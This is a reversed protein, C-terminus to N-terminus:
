ALHLQEQLGPVLLNAHKSETDGLRHIAASTGHTSASAEQAGGDSVPSHIPKHGLSEESHSLGREGSWIERNLVM